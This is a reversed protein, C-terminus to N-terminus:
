ESARISALRSRQHALSARWQIARSTNYIIKFFLLRRRVAANTFVDGALMSILAQVVQLTNTPNSILYSM